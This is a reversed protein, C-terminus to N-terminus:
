GILLINSTYYQCGFRVFVAWFLGIERLFVFDFSDAIDSLTVFCSLSRVRPFSCSMTSLSTPLPMPHSPSPCQPPCKVPHASPIINYTPLDFELLFICIFFVFEFVGFFTAPLKFRTTLCFICQIGLGQAVRRLFM